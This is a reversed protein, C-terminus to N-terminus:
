QKRRRRGLMGVAGLALVGASVPEPVAAFTPMSLGNAAAFADLATIDAQSVTADAGSSGQGFNHALVAFDSGNVSSGYLFNGQDWNLRGLGFNAALISFDSGNVTGDLNADGLLTYKIEFQRSSLGSVVNDAGDAYGVGYQPVSANSNAVAVQSSIISPSFGVGNWNGGNYGNQLMQYISSDITSQNEGAAGYNIILHNNTIDLSANPNIVLSNVTSGGSDQALQLVQQSGNGVSLTGTGTVGAISITPRGQVGNVSSGGSISVTGNNILATAQAAPVITSSHVAFPDVPGSISLTTNPDVGLASGAATVAVTTSSSTIISSAGADVINLTGGSWTIAEPTLNVSNGAANVTSASAGATVTLPRSTSWASSLLLTGGGFTVGGVPTGSPTASYVGGSIYGYNGLLGDGVTGLALTGGDLITGGTYENPVSFGLSLTGTYDPGLELGLLGGPALAATFSDEILGDFNTSKTGDIILLANNTSNNTVTASTGVAGSDLSGITQTVGFVDLTGSSTLHVNTTTPLANNVDLQIEGGSGNDITTASAGGATPGDYTSQGELMVIGKGGTFDVDSNGSIVGALVLTDSTSAGIDVSFPSAAGDGNLIIDNDIETNAQAVISDNNTNMWVTGGGNINGGQLRVAVGGELLLDGTFGGPSAPAAFSFANVTNFALTGGEVSLTGTATTPQIGTFTLTGGGIKALNGNAGNLSFGLTVNNGDTDLTSTGSATNLLESGTGFTMSNTFQLTGGQLSIGGAGSNIDGPNSISLVGGQVETLGAYSNSLNSLAVTATPSSSNVALVGSGSILGSYTGNGTQNFELVASNNNIQEGNASPLSGAATELTGSTIVTGGSYSNTGALQVTGVDGGVTLTYGNGGDSVGGTVALVNNASAQFTQSGTLV